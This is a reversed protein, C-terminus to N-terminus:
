RPRRSPRLVGEDTVVLDVAVDHEEVPVEPVIQVGFAVGIVPCAPTLKTLLRDLHGGGQGLRRGAADFAVGPVVAAQIAAPDVVPAGPPPERVGRWGAVLSALDSPAALVVDASRVLPLAVTTGARLLADLWPDLDVENGTAAYAAIVRRGALQPLVSLNRVVAASRRARDDPTLAARAARLERRLRRKDPPPAASV